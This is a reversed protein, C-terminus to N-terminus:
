ASAAEPQKLAANGRRNGGRHVATGSEKVHTVFKSFKKASDPNKQFFRLAMRGMALAENTAEWGANGGGKVKGVLSGREIIRTVRDLQQVTVVGSNKVNGAKTDRRAIERDRIKLIRDQASQPLSDIRVYKQGM